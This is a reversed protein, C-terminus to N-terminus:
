PSVTGTVTVHDFIATSLASNNHSTVALGIYVSTSMAITYQGISKWTMGDASTYGTFTNGSRVLRVWYPATVSPGWQHTTGGGTTTRGQLVAGPTPTLLVAANAAGAELNERIMVGAKAYDNTRTQSAVRATISGDGNIAQEVFQLGDAQDWINVGSGKVTFVGDSLSSSGAVGVAGIDGGTWNGPAAAPTLVSLAPASPASVNASPAAKDFAAVQYLYTTSASVNVDMFTTGSTVTAYPVATNNNRYVYYGGVGTGGSNDASSSWSLAISSATVSTSKLGAPVSPATVDASTAGSITVNDFVATGLTGNAHSTVALGVYVSSAMSITYQGASTWTNGDPSRYGTFTNGSRVLRVWYPAKITSPGQTNVASMGTGKRAQMAAGAGPTVVVDVFSSSAGLTERFMVGAKAWDNTNTQSVVRATISGDGTLVQSVFEFGDATGWIDAGSGKVTFSGNSLTYSGTVGVAGISGNFSPSFGSQTASQTTVRLVTSPASVNSPAALDFAAVQYTYSTNPSLGSDTFGTGSRVSAIPTATNGNRYVYYGGIGSGGPSPLDTSASWSLTVSSATVNTTTLNQPVTPAQADSAGSTTIAITGDTYLANTDWTLGNGLTPLILSAFGGSAADFSLIKFQQGINPTFGNALVVDLTSQNINLTQATLQGYESCPATGGLQVVLTATSPLSVTGSDSLCGTVQIENMMAAVEAAALVQAGHATYHIGDSLLFQSSQGSTGNWGIDDMLRRANIVMVHSDAQAIALEAGVYKDYESEQAASLNSQYVDAILIVPFTSDGVWSRLQSIVALVQAQFDTATAGGNAGFHVIAAQFGFAKFMAGANSHDAVFDNATYGGHSFTDVIVGEPHTANFFRLGIIDTLKSDSSGFVELGMYRKGNFDLAATIGSKVAFATSQLGLTLTGTTTPAASYSPFATSTPRAIYSIEGSSANTAAFIQAKVSGSTDFYDTDTPIGASPDVSAANKELLSLQGHSGKTINSQSNLTSFAKPIVNPLIQNANLRTAVPGPATCGGAMLWDGPPKDVYYFCGEIPTEPVNGFRQWMEYNIRPIYQFGHSTPSTEQSDGIMAIRVTQTRATDWLNQFLQPSQTFYFDVHGFDPFGNQQQAMSLSPRYGLVSVVMCLIAFRLTRRM